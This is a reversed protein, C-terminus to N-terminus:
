ECVRRWEENSRAICDEVAMGAFYNGTLALRTHGLERDIMDVLGRHLAASPSPLTTHRSELGSLVSRDVGLRVLIREHAHADTIDSAFHFTVARWTDDPFVDRTVASHFVDNTPVLFACEPLTCPERQLRLGLSHVTTTKVHSLAASLGAFGNCLLNSAEDPPLAIAVRQALMSSGDTLYVRAQEGHPQVAAVETSTRVEIAAQGAIADCISQLGGELGFSRPYGARRRRKEFLSGPGEVPFRDAKQCPVASLMPSLFRRFNRPGLIRSYYQKVSLGEKSTFLSFPLHTALEVPDLQFPVLAPTLERLHGDRLLCFRSRARGRELLSGALGLGEILDLLNGYSNYLTHAGLEFWFGDEYRPSHLCGGSRPSRELVLVSRGAQAAKWAFSLGSIGAGIVIVDPNNM